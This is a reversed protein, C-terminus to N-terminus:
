KGTNGQIIRTREYLIFEFPHNFEKGREYYERSVVRWQASDLTPFFADADDDAAYVKTMYIRQARTMAQKYLMAGGIIFTEADTACLALAEDLSRAIATDTRTQLTRSVIINRREPLPKAGLSEFTKRGMIVAGGATTLRRFRAMDEAICFLLENNKGIANNEAVAVIINIIL